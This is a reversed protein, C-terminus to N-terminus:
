KQEDEKNEVEFIESSKVFVDKENVKEIEKQVLIQRYITFIFVISFTILYILIVFCILQLIISFVAIGIFVFFIAYISFLFLYVGLSVLFNKFLFKISKFLSVFPNKTKYFLAPMWFLTLFRVVFVYVLLYLMFAFQSLTIKPLEQVSQINTNMQQSLFQLNSVHLLKQGAFTMLDTFVIGIILVLLVPLFYEGVGSFFKKFTEINYLGIKLAYDPDNKDVKQYTDVAYKIVYFWGSLFASLLLISLISFILAVMPSRLIGMGMFSNFLLIFLLFLILPQMVASNKIIIDFSKKIAKEM